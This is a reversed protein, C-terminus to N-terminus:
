KWHKIFMQFISKQTGLFRFSHVENEVTLEFLFLCKPDEYHNVAIWNAIGPNTLSGWRTYVQISESLDFVEEGIQVSLSTVNQGQALRRYDSTYLGLRYNNEVKCPRLIILTKM